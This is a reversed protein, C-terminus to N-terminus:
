TLAEDLAALAAIMYNPSGAASNTELDADLREAAEVVVVIQPLAREIANKRLREQDEAPRYAEYSPAPWDIARSVGLAKLKESASM